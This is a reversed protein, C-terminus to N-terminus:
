RREGAIGYRLPYYRLRDYWEQRLLGFRVGVSGVQGAKVCWVVLM